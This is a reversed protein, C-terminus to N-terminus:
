EDMAPYVIKKQFGDIFEKLAAVAEKILDVLGDIVKAVDNYAPM